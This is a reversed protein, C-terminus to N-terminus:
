GKDEYVLRIQSLVATGDLYPMKYDLIILDFLKENNFVHAMVNEHLNSLASRGNDCVTLDLNDGLNLDHKLVYELVV